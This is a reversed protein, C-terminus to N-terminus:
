PKNSTKKHLKVVDIHAHFLPRIASFFKRNAPTSLHSYGKSDAWVATQDGLKLLPSNPTTVQSLLPGIARSFLDRVPHSRMKTM